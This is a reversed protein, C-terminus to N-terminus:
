RATAGASGTSPPAHESAVKRSALMTNIDWMVNRLKDIVAKIHQSKHM